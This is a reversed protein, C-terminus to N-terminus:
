RIYLHVENNIVDRSNAANLSVRELPLGMQMLSRLVEEGNKRAEASALAMQAPNGESPSVAVLEFAAAPYKELAQSVASYVPQRYDINARDFRIVVLPRRAAPAQGKFVKESSATAKKYLSNAMNQGYLEGNAIALSLTQMNLTETRLYATRRNVEDNVSTLLRNIAVINQNVDDELLQLRAHDEKVAGSLGYTARVSEQLFAAKSAEGSVDTALENLHGAGQSLEDLKRQARNRTETLVPNGPTTGAQLETHASAVLAYYESALMDNKHQLTRLRDSFKEVARQQSTLDRSLETVKRTVLTEVSPSSVSPLFRMGSSSDATPALVTDRSGRRYIVEPAPEDSVVLSPLRRHDTNNSTTVNGWGPSWGGNATCGGLIVVLSFAVVSSQM